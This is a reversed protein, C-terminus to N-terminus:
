GTVIPHELRVVDLLNKIEATVRATGSPRVEWNCHTHTSVDRVQMPGIAVRWARAIGGSKRILRAILLLQLEGPTM